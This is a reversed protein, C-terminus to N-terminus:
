NTRVAAVATHLAALIAAETTPADSGTAFAADYAARAARFLGTIALMPIQVGNFHTCYIANIWRDLKKDTLRKPTKTKAAM